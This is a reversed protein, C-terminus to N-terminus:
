FQYGVGFLPTFQQFIGRATNNGAPMIQKKPFQTLYDLFDVRLIVHNALRYSVGGGVPIVLKWEDVNNLTALNPAPQEAAPGAILYGKIGAGVELFPRWRSEQPKLHFLLEYTIAHSQGQIDGKQGGSSLFPHGDQYLYRAEGSIHEYMDDTFVAGAAFRNRIGAEATAGPGYITGDRYWGYGIDGGLTYPQAPALSALLLLGACLRLGTAIHM